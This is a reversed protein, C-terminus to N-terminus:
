LLAYALAANVTVILFSIAYVGGFRAAGILTPEYAQSYGIANWLQGIVGLRAWELAAWLFPAFLLARAGLRSVLRALAFMCLAPFLGACLPAPLLLPYALWAPIDAYHIMPYTLWYCTGYFFLTGSVWGMVFAQAPRPRRAVALLLPVLGVWALPWLDFDPFALVLLLATLAAWGTDAISPSAARAGDALVRLRRRGRRPTDLSVM